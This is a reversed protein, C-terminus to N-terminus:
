AEIKKFFSKTVKVFNRIVVQLHDICSEVDSGEALAVIIDENNENVCHINETIWYDIEHDALVDINNEVIGRAIMMDDKISLYIKAPNNKNQKFFTNIKIPTFMSPIRNLDTIAEQLRKKTIKAMIKKIKKKM